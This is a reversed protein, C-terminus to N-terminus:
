GVPHEAAAARPDSLAYAVAQELPLAQGEAWLRDFSEGACGAAAGARDLSLRLADVERQWRAREAPAYPFGIAERLAQAAGLLRVAVASGGSSAAVLALGELCAAVGQQYGMQVHLPLGERYFSEAAAVNGQLQTAEGLNTLTLAIGVSNNLQRYRALAEAYLDAARAYDGTDSAIVGLNSLNIAMAHANGLSRALALSEEHLARARAHDARLRSALALLNLASMMGNRDGEQRLLPVAQELKAEADTFDGQEMALTSAGCLAQARLAAPAEQAGPMALVSELWRRGETLHTHLHWFRWLAGSLRQAKTAAGAGVAGSLAARLNDHERVLRELWRAQAPGSLQPLAEEALALCWTLHRARLAAGEGREELREAAYQRVTELLRYRSVRDAEDVQALSRGVLGDLLELIDREEIGEGV